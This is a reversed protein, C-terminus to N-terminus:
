AEEREELIARARELLYRQSAEAEEAERAKSESIKQAALALSEENRRQYDQYLDKLSMSLTKDEFSEADRENLDRCAHEYHVRAYKTDVNNEGYMDLSEYYRNRLVLMDVLETLDAWPYEGQLEWMQRKWRSKVDNARVRAKQCSKCYSQLGNLLPGPYFESHHKWEKCDSCLWHGEHDARKRYRGM